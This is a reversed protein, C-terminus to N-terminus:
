VVERDLMEMMAQADNALFADVLPMLEELTDTTRIVSSTSSLKLLGFLKHPRPVLVAAEFGEADTAYIHLCYDDSKAAYVSPPCARGTDANQRIFEARQADWAHEVIRQRVDDASFQGLEDYSFDPHQVTLELVM